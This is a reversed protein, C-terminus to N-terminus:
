DIKRNLRSAQASGNTEPRSSDRKRSLPSGSLFM